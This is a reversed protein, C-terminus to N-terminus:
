PDSGIRDIWIFLFRTVGGILVSISVLAFKTASYSSGVPTGLFGSVSSVVVFQGGKQALFHPLVLKTLHIVSFFNLDFLSKTDEIATDAATARQSRGANLVVSDIRGFKALIEALAEKQAEYDTVDLPLVYPRREGACSEAVRQLEEARRASIVVQAGSRALDRALSAGIGSSAGTIWVIKGSFGDAPAPPYLYTVWDADMQAFFATAAAAAALVGFFLGKGM